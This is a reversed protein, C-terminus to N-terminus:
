CLAWIAVCSVGWTLAAGPHHHRSGGAGPRLPSPAREQEPVPGAAPCPRAPSLQAASPPIWSQAQNFFFHAATQHLWIGGQRLSFAKSNVPGTEKQSSSGKQWNPLFHAQLQAARNPALKSEQQGGGKEQL